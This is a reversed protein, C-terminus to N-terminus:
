MTHTHTMHQINCQINNGGGFIRAVCVTLIMSYRICKAADCWNMVEGATPSLEFMVSLLCYSPIARLNGDSASIEVWRCVAVRDASRGAFLEAACQARARARLEASPWNVVYLVAGRVIREGADM